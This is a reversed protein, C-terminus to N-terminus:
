PSLFFFPVGEGRQRTCMAKYMPDLYDVVELATPRDRLRNSWCQEAVAWLRSYSQGNNSEIHAKSPREKGVTIAKIM